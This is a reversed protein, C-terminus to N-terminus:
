KMWFIVSTFPNISGQAQTNETNNSYESLPYLLRKPHVSGIGRTSFPVNPFGTRRYETWAEHGNFGALAIWKQHIIARVQNSAPWPAEDTYYITADEEDLGLFLFSATIGQEYLEQATKDFGSLLGNAVAEAQLFLSEAGLMVVQDRKYLESTATNNTLPLLVPGFGSVKPYLYADSGEGFPVGVYATGAGGAPYALRARRPDNKTVMTFFFDSWVYFDHNSAPNDASTFGYYEYWQNMKNASKVYGPNSLVNEDQNLYSVSTKPMSAMQAAVYAPKVASERLLLRLKLTNAFKIWKTNDGAFYIDAAGASSNVSNVPESLYAIATNLDVILSDYIVSANDYAPTISRTGKLADSYPVNNYTDVLLQYNYAKMVRAIGAIANKGVKRAETEVYKYDALNDYPNTWISTRFSTQIDYTKEQAFGSVSGSPSWQGSWFAGIENPSIRSASVNLANTLTLEPTSSVAQNPNKNVDLFDDCAMCLMMLASIWAISQIKTTM